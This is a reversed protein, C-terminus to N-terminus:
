PTIPDRNQDGHDNSLGSLLSNCCNLTCSMVDHVQPVIYDHTIAKQISSVNKMHYYATSCVTGVYNAM